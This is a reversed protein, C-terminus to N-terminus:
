EARRTEIGPLYTLFFSSFFTQSLSAKRKNLELIGLTAATSTGEATRLDFARLLDHHIREARIVIADLSFCEFEGLRRRLVTTSIGSGGPAARTSSHTFDVQHIAGVFFQSSRGGQTRPAANTVGCIASSTVGGSGCVM